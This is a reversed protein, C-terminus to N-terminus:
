GPSIMDRPNIHADYEAAEMLELALVAEKLSCSQEDAYKAARAANEYGILPSLATVLMLSRKVYQELQTTNAQLGQLCRSDFSSMAGTLLQLSEMLSHIIVPKFVNLQFHGQSGAVSVTTQNGMVRTCVMTLAESQTPNVKGPMISSGPENAPIRVEALGCRPGSNMLRIDNAMKFLATALTNLHGHLNVLGDHAALAMFKNSAPMFSLGTQESIQAVVTEAWQPHTNLGTGVASGGIALERVGARANILQQGAFDLQALYASFEQGLTMPTADMMHTRGSKLINKFEDIKAALTQRLDDLSLLLEELMAACVVNMVTPFVDNSSQSMNVHDNPHLPRYSGRANGALENGRNAIVENLNMNTQTGSGTQWVSLPFQEAHRGAIIEDCVAAILAANEPSLKGLKQNSLAAAKKVQAFAKIFPRPFRHEGIAFNILSRQTQAGWLCDAAVEVPGLSDREIRFPQSM